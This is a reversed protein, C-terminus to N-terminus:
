IDASEDIQRSSIPLLFRSPEEMRWAAHRGNYRIDADARRGIVVGATAIRRESINNRISISNQHCIIIIMRAGWIRAWWRRSPSSLSISLLLMSSSSWSSPAELRHLHVPSEVVVVVVRGEQLSSASELLSVFWIKLRCSWRISCCCCYEWCHCCARHFTDMASPDIPAGGNVGDDDDDDDDSDAVVTASLSSSPSSLSLGDFRNKALPRSSAVVKVAAAAAVGFWALLSSVRGDDDMPSLLLMLRSSWIVSIAWACVSSSWVMWRMISISVSADLICNPIPDLLLIWHPPLLLSPTTARASFDQIAAAWRRSCFCFCWWWWWWWWWWWREFLDSSPRRRCLCHLVMM